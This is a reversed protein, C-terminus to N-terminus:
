YEDPFMLTLVRRTHSPDEPVSSGMQYDLDYLDIKFWVRQDEIEIVGMEHWGHPDADYTFDSFERVRAMLDFRFEVSMEAIARTMVVTGEPADPDGPLIGASRRFQDNQSAILEAQQHPTLERDTLQAQM